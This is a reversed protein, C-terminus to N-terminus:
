RILTIDGKYTEAYGDPYALRIIYFYTGVPQPVGKYNGDWGYHLDSTSFVLNGWRNFVSFETVRQFSVNGIKFVDNLGDNNPSFASPIFIRDRFDVKIHATDSARCGHENTVTIIYDVPEYVAAVPDKISVDSLYTAPQWLYYLANEAAAYLQLQTGYKVLTDAPQASVVIDPYLHIAAYVTDTCNYKDTILATYAADTSPKVLPDACDTCSIEPVSAMWTFKEGGSAILRIEDGKCITTDGPNVSGKYPSIAIDITDQFYCGSNDATSVTYTIDRQVDAVPNFITTDSLGESPSWSYRLGTDPPPIFSLRTIPREQSRLFGGQMNTM